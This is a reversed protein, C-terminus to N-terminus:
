FPMENRQWLFWLHTKGQTKILTKDPGWYSRMEVLACSMKLLFIGDPRAKQKASCKLSIQLLPDAVGLHGGGGIGGSLPRAKDVAQVKSHQSHTAGWGTQRNDSLVLFM